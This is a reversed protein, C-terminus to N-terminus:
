LGKNGMISEIIKKKISSYEEETILGSGRMIKLKNIKNQFDALEKDNNTSDQGNKETFASNISDNVTGGITGAVGAMTGLGVGLNMFQGNGENKAASQAVDFGREQQYTYGEQKRKTALAQSEILTKQAETQADILATEQRIQADVVDAYKRYHLAKFKEYISDGDPKVITTLLFRNLFVGYEEFDLRLMKTLANSMDNIYEDIVFISIKQERIIRAIYSKVKVMLIARFFRVLYEQTFVKETGVLKMLLKRSDDVSVNMEGSAGISIPFNYIPEVFQIKSDTGWKIAMQEVKNIFYVECHFASIGKTTTNILKSIFPFNQTELTYKGPGFLQIAQGNMMFLAEQTEHVILQSFCNFDEVPHKWVFTANDGEYKIVNAITM